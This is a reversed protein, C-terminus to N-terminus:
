VLTLRRPGPRERDPQNWGASLARRAQLPTTRCVSLGNAAAAGRTGERFDRWGRVRRVGGWAPPPAEWTDAKRAWHRALDRRHTLYDELPERAEVVLPVERYKLEKGRRIVLLGRRASLRADPLRLAAVEGVRPGAYRMLCVLALALGHDRAVLYTTAITV